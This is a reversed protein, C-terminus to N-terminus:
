VTKRKEILKLAKELSGARYLLKLCDVGSEGTLSHIKQVAARAGIEGLSGAPTSDPIDYATGLFNAKM